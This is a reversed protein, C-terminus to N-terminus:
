WDPCGAHRTVFAVSGVATAAAMLGRRLGVDCGFGGLVRRLLAPVALLGAQVDILELFHADLVERLDRRDSTAPAVPMRLCSSIKWIEPLGFQANM